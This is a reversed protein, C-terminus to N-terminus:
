VKMLCYRNVTNKTEGPTQGRVLCVTKLNNVVLVKSFKVSRNSQDEHSITSPTLRSFRSSSSSPPSPHRLPTQFTDFSHTRSSSSVDLIYLRTMLFSYPNPLYLSFYFPHFLAKIYTKITTTEGSFISMVFLSSLSWPRMIPLSKYYQINEWYITHNFCSWLNMVSLKHM